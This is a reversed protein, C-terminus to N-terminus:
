KKRKAVLTGLGPLLRPVLMGFAGRIIGNVANSLAGQKKYTNVTTGQPTIVVEPKRLSPIIGGLLTLVAKSGMSAIPNKLLPLLTSIATAIMTAPVFFRKINEAGEELRLRQYNAEAKLRLREARLEQVNTIPKKPSTKM